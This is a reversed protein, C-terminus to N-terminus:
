FDTWCVGFGPVGENFGLFVKLYGMMLLNFGTLGLLFGTCSPLVRCVLFVRCFGTSTAELNRYLGIIFRLFSSFFSLCLLAFFFSFFAVLSPLLWSVDVPHCRASKWLSAGSILDFCCCCCCCCCSLCFFDCVDGAGDRPFFFSKQTELIFFFLFSFFFLMEIARHPLRRTKQKNQWLWRGNAPGVLWHSSASRKDRNTPWRRTKTLNGRKNRSKKPNKKRGPDKWTGSTTEIPEM